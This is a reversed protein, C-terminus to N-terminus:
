FHERRYDEDILDALGDKPGADADGPEHPNVKPITLGALWAELITPLLSQDPEPFESLTDSDTYTAL